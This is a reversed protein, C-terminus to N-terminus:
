LLLISVRSVQNPTLLYSSEGSEGSGGLGTAYEMGAGGSPRKGNKSAAKFMNKQLSRSLVTLLFLWPLQLITATPSCAQVIPLPRSWRTWPGSPDAPTPGQGPGSDRAKIALALRIYRGDKRRRRRRKRRGRGTRRCSRRVRRAAPNAGQCLRTRGPDRASELDVDRAARVLQGQLLVSLDSITLKSSSTDNRARVPMPLLTLPPVRSSLM